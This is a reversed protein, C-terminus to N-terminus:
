NEQGVKLFLLGEGEGSEAGNQDEHLLRCDALVRRKYCSRGTGDDGKCFNSLHSRSTADGGGSLSNRRMVIGHGRRSGGSRAEKWLSNEKALPTKAEGVAGGSHRLGEV